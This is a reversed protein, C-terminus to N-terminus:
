RGRKSRSRANPRLVTAFVLGALVLFTAPPEPVAVSTPVASGQGLNRQWILFDDGDSDGDNDADGASTTGFATRWMGLDEPGVMGNGSFDGAPSTTPLDLAFIVGSDVFGGGLTSGYLTGADIVLAGSPLAGDDAGGAFDHLLVLGTGNLNLRYATGLDADGGFETTGYLKGNSLTLPASPFAGDSAGGAFEHLVQYGAGDVGVKFVTGANANGGAYTTGYLAAGSLTVTALPTAGDSAGGTFEHLVQYDTGDLNLKFVTGLNADGGTSTSGM